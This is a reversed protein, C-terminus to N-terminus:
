RTPPTACIITGSPEWTARAGAAPAIKCLLAAQGSPGPRLVNICLQSGASYVKSDYICYSGIDDPKIPPPMVVAAQPIQQAQTIQQSHGTTAVFAAAAATAATAAILANRM